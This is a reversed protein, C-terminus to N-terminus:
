QESPAQRCCVRNASAVAEAAAYPPSRLPLRRAIDRGLVARRVEAYGNPQRVSASGSRRLLAAHQVCRVDAPGCRERSHAIHRRRARPRALPARSCRHTAVIRPARAALPSEPTESAARAAEAGAKRIGVPSEAHANHIYVGDLKSCEGHNWVLCPAPSNGLIRQGPLLTGSPQPLLTEPCGFGFPPGAGWRARM